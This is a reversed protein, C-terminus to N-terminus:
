YHCITIKDMVRTDSCWGLKIVKESLPSILLATCPAKCRLVISGVAGACSLAMSSENCINSEGTVALLSRPKRFTGQSITVEARCREQPFCIHHADHWAKSRYSGIHMTDTPWTLMAPNEQKFEKHHVSLPWYLSMNATHNTKLKRGWAFSQISSRSWNSCVLGVAM